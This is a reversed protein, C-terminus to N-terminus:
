KYLLTANMIDITYLIIFIITVLLWYTVYRLVMLEITGSIKLPYVNFWNSFLM